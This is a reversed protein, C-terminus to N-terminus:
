FKVDLVVGYTRPDSYTNTFTWQDSTLSGASDTTTMRRTAVYRSDGVNRVYGTVGVRDGSSSWTANLNGIVESEMHAYQEAYRENVGSVQAETVDSIDRSSLYRGDARIMLNSGGPLNFVHEYFLNATIPVATAISDNAVYTAFVEPKNVYRAHTYAANFGVRDADTLQYLVDLEVGYSKVPVSINQFVPNFPNDSVNIGGTQYGGYDYYYVAGNVQLTDGLFRNKSGVEYATLTEADLVVPCPTNNPACTTLSVDGPSFSTSVSAYMMNAPTLDHELRLKYTWNHFKQTGLDSPLSATVLNEPLGTPNGVLTTNATYDQAVEVETVDYRVGMTLRLSDMFPYTAEGFVGIADTKKETESIYAHAGNIFVFSNSNELENKYYLAGTQWILKSDPNSALRFEHTWFDDKPTRKFQTADFTGTLIVDANQEWTRLAPLYTLTAWGVNWNAEAWYQRTKNKSGGVRETDSIDVADPNATGTDDFIRGGTHDTSDRMAIGVLVSLDANPQYLIKVRADDNVRANSAGLYYHDSEYRNGSIRIGLVDKVLPVNLAAKYHLLHYNGAELSVNGGFADLEPKRTHIAVVGATASRGYLTGQPGRLVEVREIDYDGGAGEYVGDVYIATAAPTSTTTGGVGQSSAIGRITIGAGLTDTGGGASTLTSEAAGGAMGPIDELISQLSYKGQSALADGSRVTVSAATKQLDESRREATVVIEELVETQAYATGSCLVAAVSLGLLGHRTMGSSIRM